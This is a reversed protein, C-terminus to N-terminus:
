CVRPVKGVQVRTMATRGKEDSSTESSANKGEEKIYLKEFYKKLLGESSNKSLYKGKM